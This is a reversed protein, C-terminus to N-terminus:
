RNGMSGGELNYEAYVKAPYNDEDVSNLHAKTGFKFAVARQYHVEFTYEKEARENENSIVLQKREIDDEPILTIQCRRHGTEKVEYKM